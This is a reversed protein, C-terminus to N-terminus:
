WCVSRQSCVGLLSRPVTRAQNASRAPPLASHRNKSDALFAEFWAVSRIDPNNTPEDPLLVDPDGFLAQALLVQVKLGLKISADSTGPNMKGTLIRLFVSKAAGHYVLSAVDAIRFGANM